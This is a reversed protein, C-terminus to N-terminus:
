VTLAKHRRYLGMGRRRIYGKFGPPMFHGGMERARVPEWGIAALARRMYSAPQVVRQDGIWFVQRRPIRKWEYDFAQDLLAPPLFFRDSM